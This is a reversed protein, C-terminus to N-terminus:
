KQKMYEQYIKSAEVEDVPLLPPLKSMDDNEIELISKEFFTGKTKLYFMIAQLKGEKIQTLLERGAYALAKARGARHRTKVYDYEDCFEQWEESEIAYFDGCEKLTLGFSGLETIEEYFDFTPPREFGAM